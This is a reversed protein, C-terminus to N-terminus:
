PMGFPTLPTICSPQPIGALFVSFSDVNLPSMEFTWLRRLRITSWMPELFASHRHRRRLAWCWSDYRRGSSRAVHYRPRKEPQRNLSLRMLMTSQFDKYLRRFCSAQFTSPFPKWHHFCSQTSYSPTTLYDLVGLAAGDLIETHDGSVIVKWCDSDFDVFKHQSIVTASPVGVEGRFDLADEGLPHALFDKVQILLQLYWKVDDIKDFNSTGPILACPEGCLELLSVCVIESM